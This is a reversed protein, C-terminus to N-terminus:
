KDIVAKFISECNQYKPYVIGHEEYRHEGKFKIFIYWTSPGSEVAKIKGLPTEFLKIKPHTSIDKFKLM